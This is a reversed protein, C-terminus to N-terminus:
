PLSSNLEVRVIVTKVPDISRHVEVASVRDGFLAVIDVLVQDPVAVAERNPSDNRIPSGGGALTWRGIREFYSRESELHGRTPRPM